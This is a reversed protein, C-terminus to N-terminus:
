SAILADIVYIINCGALNHAELEDIDLNLGAKTAKIQPNIINQPNVRRLRMGILTLLSVKVGTFYATVWLGVPVFRFFLSVIALLLITIIIFGIFGADFFEPQM